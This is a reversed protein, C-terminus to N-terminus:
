MMKRVRKDVLEQQHEQQGKKLAEIQEDTYGIVDKLVEETNEGVLPTPTYSGTVADVIKIPCDIARVKGYQPHEMEVVTKNHIVQPDEIVMDLTNVPGCACDQARMLEVWDETNAEALATELEHEMEKKNASLAFINSFRPDDIMWERDVVRAIRPWSPGIAMYSDKTKFFGLLATLPHRSGQPKPVEGSIFFAQFHNAILSISADLLNVNVQRGKGTHEREYLAIVTGFSAYIGASIDAVAAGSRIPPGGEEGCLSAMGSLAQAIDDMSSYEAYPGTVGFGCISTCIIRPNLKSLTEYDLGSRKMAGARFNDFVVDSKKVLEYFAEKGVKTEWDLVLSRKNRNLALAYYGLQPNGGHWPPGMRLLDGMHSEIKIVEAGMDALIQTGYPGAHAQSVDLIRVGTLPGQVAM